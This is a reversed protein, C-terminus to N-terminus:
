SAGGNTDRPPRVWFSFGSNTMETGQGIPNETWDCHSVLNAGSRELGIVDKKVCHALQWCGIEGRIELYPLKNKESCKIYPKGHIFETTM